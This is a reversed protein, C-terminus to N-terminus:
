VQGASRFLRPGVLAAILAIISLVILIELLSYGRKLYAPARRERRGNLSKMILNLMGMIRGYVLRSHLDDM